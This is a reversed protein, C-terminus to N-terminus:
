RAIGCPLDPEDLEIRLAIRGHRSARLDEDGPEEPPQVIVHRLRVQRRQPRLFQRDVVLGADFRRAAVPTPELFRVDPQQQASRVALGISRVADDGAFGEFAPGDATESEAARPGVIGVIHDRVLM